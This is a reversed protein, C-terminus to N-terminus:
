PASCDILHKKRFFISDCSSHLTKSLKYLVHNGYPLSINGKMKSRRRKRRDPVLWEAAALMAVLVPSDMQCPAQFIVEDM